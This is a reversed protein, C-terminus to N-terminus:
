KRIRYIAYTFTIIATVIGAFPIVYLMYNNDPTKRDKELKATEQSQSKHPQKASVHKPSDAPISLSDSKEQQPPISGSDSKHLRLLEKSREEATPMAQISQWEDTTFETENVSNFIRLDEDSEIVLVGPLDHTPLGIDSDCEDGIGDNDTDIQSPNAVDPCNDIDRPIPDGDDSVDLRTTYVDTQNVNDTVRVSIDGSYERTPTISYTLDKSKIEFQGDGDLDWEVLTIDGAPSYSASADLEITDAIKSMYPGQLWASPATSSKTSSLNDLTNTKALPSVHNSNNHGVPLMFSTQTDAEFNYVKVQDLPHSDLIMDLYISEYYPNIKSGPTVNSALLITKQAEPRWNTMRSATLGDYSLVPWNYAPWERKINTILLGSDQSNTFYTHVRYPTTIDPFTLRSEDFYGILSYRMDHPSAAFAKAANRVRDLRTKVHRQHGFGGSDIAVVLDVSKAFPSIPQASTPVGVKQILTEAIKRHGIRNPHYWNNRDLSLDSATKSNFQMRGNTEVFENLWRYDNRSSAQPDPEHSAFESSIDVFTAKITSTKNWENVLTQQALVARKGFSRIAAAANYQSDKDCAINNGPTDVYKQCTSLYYEKDQSLLPYGILVIEANSPLQKQIHGFISRISTSTEGLKNEAKTIAAKCAPLNRVGVAFCTAVVNEFNVDNGGSTILILNTDEPINDLQKEIINTTTHGSHALNTLRAKVNHSSLWQVYQHAYNNKSRYASAGGYYAGAGNGASYSDGLLTVNLKKYNASTAYVSNHNATSVILFAASFLAVNNMIKSYILRRSVGM